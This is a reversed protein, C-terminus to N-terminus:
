SGPLSGIAVGILRVGRLAVVILWIWILRSVPLSMSSTFSAFPWHHICLGGIFKSNLGQQAQCLRLTEAPMRKVPKVRCGVTELSGAGDYGKIAIRLDAKPIGFGQLLPAIYLDTIM